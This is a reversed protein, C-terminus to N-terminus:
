KFDEYMKINNSEELKSLRSKLEESESKTLHIDSKPLSIIQSNYDFVKDEQGNIVVSLKEGMKIGFKKAMNYFSDMAKKRFSQKELIIGQKSEKYLGDDKSMPFLKIDQQEEEQHDKEEEEEEEFDINILKTNTSDIEPVEPWEDRDFESDKFRNLENFKKIM